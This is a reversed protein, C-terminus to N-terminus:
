NWSQCPRKQHFFVKTLVKQFDQIVTVYQILTYIRHRLAIVTLVANVVKLQNNVTSFPPELKDGFTNFFVQFLSAKILQTEIEAGIPIVSETEVRGHHYIRWVTQHVYISSIKSAHSQNVLSLRSKITQHLTASCIVSVTQIRADKKKTRQSCSDRKMGIKQNWSREEKLNQSSVSSKSPTYHQVQDLWSRDMQGTEKNFISMALVRMLLLEM